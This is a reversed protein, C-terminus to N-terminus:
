KWLLTSMSKLHPVLVGYMFRNNNVRQKSHRYTYTQYQKTCPKFRNWSPCLPNRNNLALTYTCYSVVWFAVYTCYWHMVCCSQLMSDSQVSGVWETMNVVSGGKEIFQSSPVTPLQIVPMAQIKHWYSSHGKKSYVCLYIYEDNYWHLFKSTSSESIDVSNWVPNMSTWANTWREPKWCFM